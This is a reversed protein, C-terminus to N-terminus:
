SPREKAGKGTESNALLEQELSIIEPIDLIHLNSGGMPGCAHREGGTESNPMSEYTGSLSFLHSKHAFLGMYLPYFPM